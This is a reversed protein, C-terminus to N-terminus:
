LLGEGDLLELVADIGADLDAEFTRGGRECPPSAIEVMEVYYGASRLFQARLTDTLLNALRYRIPGFDTM